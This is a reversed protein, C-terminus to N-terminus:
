SKKEDSDGGDSKATVESIHAKAVRVKVKPAIELTVIKETIGAVTGLIGSSTMVEDGKKVAGLMKEREQQRKKQPMHLLFYYLVGIAVLPFLFSTLGGGGPQDGQPFMAQGAQLILIWKM